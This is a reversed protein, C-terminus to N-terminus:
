SHQSSCSQVPVGEIKVVDSRGLKDALVGLEIEDLSNVELDFKFGKIREKLLMKGTSFQLKKRTSAGDPCWMILILDDKSVSEKTDYSLDFILLCCTDPKLHSLLQQYGNGCAQQQTVCDEDVVLFKEDESLNLKLLKRRTFGMKRIKMTEFEDFVQQHIGIGSHM